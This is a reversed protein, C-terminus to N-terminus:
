SETVEQSNAGDSSTLKLDGQAIARMLASINGLRGAGAGRTQRYGLRFALGELATKDEVTLLFTTHKSM